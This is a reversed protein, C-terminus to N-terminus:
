SSPRAYWQVWSAAVNLESTTDGADYREVDLTLRERM